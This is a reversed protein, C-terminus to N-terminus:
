SDSGDSVPGKDIEAFIDTNSDESTDALLEPEVSPTENAIVGAAQMHSVPAKLTVAKIMQSLLPLNSLPQLSYTRIKHRGAPKGVMIFQHDSIKSIRPTFQQGTQM